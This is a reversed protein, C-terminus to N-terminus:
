VDLSYIVTGDHGHPTDTLYRGMEDFIADIADAAAAYAPEDRYSAIVMGDTAGGRALDWTLLGDIDELRKEQAAMWGVLEELADEEFHLRTMRYYM